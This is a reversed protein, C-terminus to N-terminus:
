LPCSDTNCKRKPLIPRIYHAFVDYGINIAPRLLKNEFLPILFQYRPIRRWIALFSDVGIHVTGDKDIAHMHLNVASDELGYDSAKFNDSAIDIPKILKKSDLKVYHEVEKFCVVCKGDFFLKLETMIIGKAM